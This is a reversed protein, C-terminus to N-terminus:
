YPKHAATDNRRMAFLGQDGLELRHRRVVHQCYVILKWQFSCPPSRRWLKTSPANARSVRTQSPPCRSDRPTSFFATVHLTNRSPRRDRLAVGPVPTAAAHRGRLRCPAARALPARSGFANELRRDRDLVETDTDSGKKEKRRM